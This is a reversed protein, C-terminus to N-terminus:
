LCIDDYRISTITDNIDEIIFLGPCDCEPYVEYIIRTIGCVEEQEYLKFDPNESLKLKNVNNGVRVEVNDSIHLTYYDKYITVSNLHNEIDNGFDLRIGKEDYRYFSGSQKEDAVYHSCTGYVSDLQEKTYNYGFHVVESNNRHNYIYVSPSTSGEIHKGTVTATPEEKPKSSKNTCGLAFCVCLLTFLLRM